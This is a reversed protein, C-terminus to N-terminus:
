CEVERCITKKQSSNAPFKKYLTSLEMAVRQRSEGAAILGRAQAVAGSDIKDSPWRSKGM